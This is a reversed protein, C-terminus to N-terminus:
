FITNGNERSGSGVCIHFCIRANKTMDIGFDFNNDVKWNTHVSLAISIGNGVIGFVIVFIYLFIYIGISLWCVCISWYSQSIHMYIVKYCCYTSYVLMHVFLFICYMNVDTYMCQTMCASKAERAEATVYIYDERNYNTAETPKKQKKKIHHKDRCVCCVSETLAVVATFLM